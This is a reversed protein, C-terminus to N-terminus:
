LLAGNRLAAAIDAFRDLSVEPFSKAGDGYEALLARLKAIKGEAMAKQLDVITKDKLELLAKVSAPADPSQVPSEEAAGLSQGALDPVPEPAKRPRGRQKAAPVAAAEQEPERAAEPVESPPVDPSGVTKWVPMPLLAFLQARIGEVTEAEITITIM